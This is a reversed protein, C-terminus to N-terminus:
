GQSKHYLRRGKSCFQRAVTKLTMCYPKSIECVKKLRLQLIMYSFANFKTFFKDSIELLAGFRNEEIQESIFATEFLFRISSYFILPLQLSLKEKFVTVMLQLFIKYSIIDAQIHDKEDKLNNPIYLYSNLFKYSCSLIIVYCPKQTTILDGLLIGLRGM